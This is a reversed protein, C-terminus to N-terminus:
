KSQSTIHWSTCKDCEYARVPVKENKSNKSIWKIHSVAVERSVYKVKKCDSQEEPNKNLRERISELNKEVYKFLSINGKNKSEFIEILLSPDARGLEIFKFKGGTLITKDNYEEIQNM